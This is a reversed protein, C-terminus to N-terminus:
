QKLNENNRLEKKIKSLYCSISQRSLFCMQSIEKQNYGYVFYEMAIDYALKNGINMLITKRCIDALDMNIAREEPSLTNDDPVNILSIINEEMDISKRKQNSRIFREMKTEANLLVPIQWEMDELTAKDVIEYDGDSFRYTVSKIEDIHFTVFKEDSTCRIYGNKLVQMEMGSVSSLAIIDEESFMVSFRRDYQKKSVDSTKIQEKLEKFKM